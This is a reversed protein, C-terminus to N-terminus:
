FMIKEAASGRPHVPYAFRQGDWSGGNESNGPTPSVATGDIGEVRLVGGVRVVRWVECKLETEFVLPIEYVRKHKFSQVLINRAHSWLM